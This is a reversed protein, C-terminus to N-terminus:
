SELGLGLERVRVRVRARVRVRVRVRTPSCALLWGGYYTIHLSPPTTPTILPRRQDFIM